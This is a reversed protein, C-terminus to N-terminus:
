VQSEIDKTEELNMGYTSRNPLSAGPVFDIQHKIGLILHCDRLVMMPFYDDFEKLLKEVQPSLVKPESENSSTCTLTGKCLLLYPPQETLLYHKLLNKTLFTEKQNVEHSPVGLEWV